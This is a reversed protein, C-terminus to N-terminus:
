LASLSADQVEKERDDREGARGTAVALILQACPACMRLYHSRPIRSDHEANDLFEIDALCAQTEGCFYCWDPGHRAICLALRKSM